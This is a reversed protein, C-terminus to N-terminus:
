HRDAFECDKVPKKFYKGLFITLAMGHARPPPPLPRIPDAAEM